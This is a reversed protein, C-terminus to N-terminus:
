AFLESGRYLPWVLELWREELLMDGGGAEYPPYLGDLSIGVWSM